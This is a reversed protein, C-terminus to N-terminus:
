HTYSKESIHVFFDPDYQKYTKKFDGYTNVTQFGTECLLQLMYKKRLPFMNLYFVSKDSFEYRFRALGEDIYEPGVKVNEGVYYYTHKSTYGQDLIADYNRQDLILIGDHRLLSYYEALVRRRDKDDFLHTFSNGLCIIADYRETIDKSLWRWDSSVTKLTHGRKLGNKIAQTLMQSSGDVSTVDFGAELLKITHYGTGTAVDLIKKVNRRKLEKIFFNNEGKARAKWDILKDWKEVFNQIYEFQYHNTERVELPRNGFNQVLSQTTGQNIM